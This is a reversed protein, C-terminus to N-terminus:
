SSGAAEKKAGFEITKAEQLLTCIEQLLTAIEKIEGSCHLCFQDSIALLEARLVCIQLKQRLDNILVRTAPDM